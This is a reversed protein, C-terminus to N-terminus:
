YRPTAVKYTNLVQLTNTAMLKLRLLDQNREEIKELYQSNEIKLQKFDVENLVEGMEEKQKLQMHLKKKQVRLTSNKLRLKGVLTEQFLM